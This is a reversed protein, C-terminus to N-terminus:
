GREWLMELWHASEDAEEAVVGMRAVFEAHSRARCVARYNAAVSNAARGLRPGLYRSAEVSGLADVLRMVDLAFRKTREKLEESQVGM